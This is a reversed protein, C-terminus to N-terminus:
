DEWLDLRLIDIYTLEDLVTISLSDEVVEMDGSNIDFFYQPKRVDRICLGDEIFYVYKADKTYFDIVDYPHRFWFIVDESIGNLHTLVGKNGHQATM